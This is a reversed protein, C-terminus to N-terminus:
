TSSTSSSRAPRGTTPRLRPMPLVCCVMAKRRTKCTRQRCTCCPLRRRARDCQTPGSSRWRPPRAHRVEDEEEDVFDLADAAAEVGMADDDGKPPKGHWRRTVKLRHVNLLHSQDRQAVLEKLARPLEPHTPAGEHGLAARSVSALVIRSCMDKSYKTEDVIERHIEEVMQAVVGNLLSTTLALLSAPHLRRRSLDSHQGLADDDDDDDDYFDDDYADLGDPKVSKKRKPKDPGAEEKAKADGGEGEEGEKEEAGEKKEEKEEGEAGSEDSEEDGGAPDGDGRQPTEGRKRAQRRAAKRALADHSRKWNM